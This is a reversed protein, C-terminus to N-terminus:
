YRYYRNTQFPDEVSKAVAIRGAISDLTAYDIGVAECASKIGRRVSIDAGEPMPTQSRSQIDYYLQWDILQVEGRWDGWRQSIDRAAYAANQNAWRGAVEAVVKRVSKTGDHEQQLFDEVALDRFDDKDIPWEDIPRRARVPEGVGVIGSARDEKLEKELRRINLTGGTPGSGNRRGM